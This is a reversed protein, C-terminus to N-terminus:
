FCDNILDTVCDKLHIGYPAKHVTLCDYWMPIKQGGCWRWDTVFPLLLDTPKGMSAALHVTSNDITIVRDCSQILSALHDINVFTDIENVSKLAIGTERYAQDIEDKCDGYQLNVLEVNKGKFPTLFESLSLSRMLGTSKNISKWSIGVLCKDGIRFAQRIQQTSNLDAKLKTPSANKFDFESNRFYQALSGMPIHSDYEHEALKKDGPIFFFNPFTRRFIPLLRRDVQFIALECFESFEEFMTSFMIQDGIGQEQWVLVKEKKGNWAPKETELYKSDFNTAQWRWEYNKWGEAFNKGALQALAKNWYADHFNPKLAIAKEVQELSEKLQLKDKLVVSYNSYLEAKEPSYEIAKKYNHIAEDLYGMDKLVNALNNHADGYTPDNKIASEYLRIAEIYDQRHYYINGLNNLAINYDPKAELSKKYAKEAEDTRNVKLSLSGLHNQLEHQKPKIELARKLYNIAEEVKGLESLCFSLNKLSDFHKHDANLAKEYFGIASEVKNQMKLLTGINNWPAPDHPQLEGVKDFCSRAKAFESLSSYSAGLKLLVDPTNPYEKLFLKALKVVEEHQGATYHKQILESTITIEGHTNQVNRMLECKSLGDQARQNGPFAILISKYTKEAESIQGKRLKNKAKNLSYEVSHAM